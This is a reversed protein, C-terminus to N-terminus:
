FSVEVINKIVINMYFVGPSNYELKCCDALFTFIDDLSSAATIIVLVAASNLCLSNMIQSSQKQHADVMFM